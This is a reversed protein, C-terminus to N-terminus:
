NGDKGGDDILFQDQPKRRNRGRELLDETFDERTADEVLSLTPAVQKQLWEISKELTKERPSTVTLNARPQINVFENWWEAKFDIYDRLHQIAVQAWTEFDPNNFISPAIAIARKDKIQFEARTFGRKNYVTLKRESHDSGIEVTFTGLQGDERLEFPSQHIKLSDRKALTRVENEMFSNFIDQPSFDVHDFALDIRKFKYQGEFNIELYDFLAQFRTIPIADCTNGRLLINFHEQEPNIPVTYIQFLLLAEFIERYGNGGHGKPALVGFIEKFLEDYLKLAESFPAHITVGLWHIRFEVKSM